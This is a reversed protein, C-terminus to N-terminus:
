IRGTLIQDHLSASHSLTLAGMVLILAAVGAYRILKQNPDLNRTDLLFALAAGSALGGLHALYGINPIAFTLFLNMVLIQVVWQVQARGMRTNRHMYGYALVAGFLGFISGSAGAGVAFPSGLVFEAVNGGIGALLYILLMKKAGFNSSVVPGFLYLAYMNFAIHLLGYHLFIPTILRWYEHNIALSPPFMGGVEIMKEVGPGGILDGGGSAAMEAVFAAVTIGLIVKTFSVNYFRLKKGPGARFERRAEAVCDPCQHGVPAPIMCQPCIPKGCRTCHVRTEEAPHRYCYEVGPPAPMMPDPQM